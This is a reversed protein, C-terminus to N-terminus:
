GFFALLATTSTIAASSGINGELHQFFRFTVEGGSDGVQGNLGTRGNEGAIGTIIVRWDAATSASLDVYSIALTSDWHLTRRLGIQSSGLLAGKTAARFEVSPNAEWVPIAPNATASSGAALSSAAIGVIMFAGDATSQLIQGASTSTQATWNTHVLRGVDIRSNTSIPIYHGIPFAGWPSRWPRCISGSSLTLDAM